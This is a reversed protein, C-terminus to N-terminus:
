KIRQLPEPYLTSRLQATGEIHFFYREPQDQFAGHKQEKIGKPNRRRQLTYWGKGTKRGLHGAKVKRRLLLPPYFRADGTENYISMMAGYGAQACVQAIGSGMLGVGCGNGKSCEDTKEQDRISRNGDQVCCHLFVVCLFLGPRLCSVPAKQPSSPYFRRVIL